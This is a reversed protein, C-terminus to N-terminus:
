RRAARRDQDDHREDGDSGRSTGRGARREALADLRRGLVGVQGPEVADARLLHRREHPRDGAASAVSDIESIAAWVRSPWAVEGHEARAREHAREGGRDDGAHHREAPREEGADGDADGLGEDPEVEEVLGPEISKRMRIAMRTATYKWLRLPAPSVCVNENVGFRRGIGSRSRCRRTPACGRGRRAREHQTTARDHQREDHGLRRAVQEVRRDEHEGEAAHRERDEGAPGPLQREALHREGADARQEGGREVAADVDVDAHCSVAHDVAPM